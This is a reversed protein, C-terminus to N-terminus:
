RLTFHREASSTVLPRREAIQENLLGLPPASLRLVTPVEATETWYAAGM